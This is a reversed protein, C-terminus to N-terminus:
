QCDNDGDTNVKGDKVERANPSKDSLVFSLVDRDTIAKGAIGIVFRQFIGIQNEDKQHGHSIDNGCCAEINRNPAHDIFDGFLVFSPVSSPGPAPSEREDGISLTADAVAVIPLLFEWSQTFKIFDFKVALLRASSVAGIEVHHEGDQDKKIGNRIKRGKDKDKEASPILVVVM